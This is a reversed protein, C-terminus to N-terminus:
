WGFHFRYELEVSYSEETYYTGEIAIDHGTRSHYGVTASFLMAQYQSGKARLKPGTGVGLFISRFPIPKEVTEKVLVPHRDDRYSLELSDLKGQGYAKAFVTVSDKATSDSTVYKVTSEQLLSDCKALLVDQKQLVEMCEQISDECNVAQAFTPRLPLFRETEKNESESVVTPRIVPMPHITPDAPLYITDRRAEGCPDGFYHKPICYFALHAAMLLWTVQFVIKKNEWIFKLTDTLIGLAIAPTM